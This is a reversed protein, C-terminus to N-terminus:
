DTKSTPGEKIWDPDDNDLDKAHKRVKDNLDKILKDSYGESNEFTMTIESIDEQSRYSGSKGKITDRRSYGKKITITKPDM